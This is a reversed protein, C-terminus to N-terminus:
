KVREWTGDYIWIGIRMFIIGFEKFKRHFSLITRRLSTLKVGTSFRTDLPLGSDCSLMGRPSPINLLQSPVHFTGSGSATYPDHFERADTLSNVKNQLDKIQSLFQNVASPNREQQMSFKDIRLQRVRDTEECCIRQLEEIERCDRARNGQFIRNRIELEGFSNIKEGKLRIQGNIRRIFSWDRLNSNEIPKLSPLILMEKDGFEQTWQQRLRLYDKRLWVNEKFLWNLKRKLTHTSIEGKPCLICM